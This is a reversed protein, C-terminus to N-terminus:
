VNNIVATLKINNFFWRTRLFHRARRYKTEGQGLSVSSVGGYELQRHQTNRFTLRLWFHERENGRGLKAHEREFVAGDQVSLEAVEVEDPLQTHALKARDILLAM